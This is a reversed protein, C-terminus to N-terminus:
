KASDRKNWGNIVKDIQIGPPYDSEMTSPTGPESTKRKLTTPEPTKKNKQNRPKSRGCLLYVSMWIFSLFLVAFIISIYITDWDDESMPTYPLAPNSTSHSM